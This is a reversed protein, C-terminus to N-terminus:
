EFSELQEMTVKLLDRNEAEIASKMLKLNYQLNNINKIMREYENESLVVINKDDSRTVILAINKSYVIDLQNRLNNRFNTVNTAKVIPLTTM